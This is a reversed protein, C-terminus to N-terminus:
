NAYSAHLISCWDLLDDEIWSGREIELEREVYDDDILHYNVSVLM